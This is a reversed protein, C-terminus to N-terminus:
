CQNVLNWLVRRGFSISKTHGRLGAGIAWLVGWVFFMLVCGFEPLLCCSICTSRSVVPRDSSQIPGRVDRKWNQEGPCIVYPQLDVGILGM